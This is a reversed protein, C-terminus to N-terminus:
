DSMDGLLKKGIVKVVLRRLTCGVAIPRIGGDKKQLAVLSSCVSALKTISLLAQGVSSCGAILDKLRQPVQGVQGVHSLIFQGTM